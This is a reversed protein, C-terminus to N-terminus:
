PNKDKKGDIGEIAYNNLINQTFKDIPYHGEDAADGTFITPVVRNYPDMFNGYENVTGPFEHMHPHWGDWTAGNEIVKSTQLNMDDDIEIMTAYLKEQNSLKYAQTAGFLAAITIYKM